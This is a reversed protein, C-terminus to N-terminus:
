IGLELDIFTLRAHLEAREQDLQALRDLIRNREDLLQRERESM